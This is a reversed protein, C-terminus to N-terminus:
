QRIRPNAVSYLVDTLFNVAVYTLGIALICGQVLYYDRNATGIALFADVRRFLRTLIGQKVATKLVSRESSTAHSEGRLLVKMGRRRAAILARLQAHHAYGHLWVADYNGTHLEQEVGVTFPQWFGVADASGWARLVKSPYGDLLNVDWAVPQGFGRDRYERTSFDSLFLVTLDIGKELALRRLLPAQYQIPHSVIYAIRTVSASTRGFSLASM